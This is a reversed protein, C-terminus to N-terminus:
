FGPCRERTRRHRQRQHGSDGPAGPGVFEGYRFGTVEQGQRTWGIAGDWLFTPSFTMTHGITAVQTRLEGDGINGQCLPAGGAPGLAPDCGVNANMISYKGWVTHTDRRNWNIKLDLNDRDLRQSGSASYNGVTGPRNPLPVLDQVKRTISSQRNLPIVNGPFPTRGSGDATGTLPDYITANYRSFDGRRQDETPVTLLQTFGLRERNGEWGGFYFLKNRVIPGGITFGDINQNHTPKAGNNFFNRARFVANDNFAFVSGHLDNTGSKTIVTIAAGGALGQEADFDNTSINVTEITEAPPVYATHHPLWLFVSLAGDIRTANNNRNVGNVNTSLARAPAAQISNQYVGPTAGPVLNILSQYNRYRPLPLNTVERSDLETHLDAKETQLSVAAAQVTVSETVQGLELTVDERRVTNATVAINVRTFPRFGTASIKLEYVGPMLGPFIYHGSESTSANLSQGTGANTVSVAAGPVVAGTSDAVTGSLSGYLVQASLRPGALVLLLLVSIASRTIM